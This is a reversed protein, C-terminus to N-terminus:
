CVVGMKLKYLRHPEFPQISSCGFAELAQAESAVYTANTSILTGFHLPRFENRWINLTSPANSLDFWILAAAGEIKSLISLNQDTALAAFILKSDMDVSNPNIHVHEFRPKYELSLQLYNNITGNHAGIIHNFKFPHCNSLNVSGITADRTHALAASCIPNLLHHRLNTDFPGLDKQIVPFGSPNSFCVGTSHTGRNQSLSLLNSLSPTSPTPTSFAVLGCM